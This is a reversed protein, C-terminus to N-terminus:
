ECRLVTVPDVRSPRRTPLYSAALAMVLLLSGSAFSVPDFTPVGFLFKSLLTSAAAGGAVGLVIGWVAFRMGEAAVLWTIEFPKGGLALRVGMEQTRQAIAHSLVGYIGILSLMLTLLVFMGVLM